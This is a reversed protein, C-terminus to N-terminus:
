PPSCRCELCSVPSTSGISDWFNGGGPRLEFRGGWPELFFGVWGTNKFLYVVRPFSSKKHSNRIATHIKKNPNEFDNSDSVPGGNDVLEPQRNAVFQWLYGLRQTTVETSGTHIAKKIAKHSLKGIGFIKNSLGPNVSQCMVTTSFCGLFPSFCSKRHM